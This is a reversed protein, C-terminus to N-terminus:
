MNSLSIYFALSCHSVFAVSFATWHKTCVANKKVTSERYGKNSNNCNNNEEGEEVIEDEEHLLKQAKV